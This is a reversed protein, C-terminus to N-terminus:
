GIRESQRPPEGYLEPNLVDMPRDGALFREINDVTRDAMEARTERAASGIHPTLVVNPLDLLGPRPGHGPEPIEHEYVDLGAGRLRGERLAAELAEEDVVPGRSTNILIADPKMLALREASILGKTAITLLPALVVFDSICLLEDLERYEVGLESEQEASLRSRKNYLIKMGMARCRRAVGAGVRGFGVIGVTKGFLRTGLIAESQNQTWRGDRLFRDAEPIRWATSVLLTFTFEGTTEALTNPVGTVPVGRRTAAGIDVFTASVHMAAILQLDKAASIVPEDYPVDGLAFLITQDVVGGLVEERTIRRDLHDFLSVEGIKRLRRL